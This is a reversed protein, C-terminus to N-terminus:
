AAFQILGGGYGKIEVAFEFRHEAQRFFRKLEDPADGPVKHLDAVSVRRGDAAGTFLGSGINMIEYLTEMAMEDIIGKQTNGNAAQAPNLCLAASIRNALGIDCYCAGIVQGDADVFTAVTGPTTSNFRTARRQAIATVQRGLLAALLSRVDEHEVRFNSM